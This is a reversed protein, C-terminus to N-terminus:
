EDDMHSTKGAQVTSARPVHAVLACGWTKTAIHKTANRRADCTTNGSLLAGVSSRHKRIQATGRDSINASPPGIRSTRLAM